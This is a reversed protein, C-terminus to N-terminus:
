RIIGGMGKVYDEVIFRDERNFVSYRFTISIQNSDIQKGSYEDVIDVDIVPDIKRFIDALIGDDCVRSFIVSLDYYYVSLNNKKWEFLEEKSLIDINSIKMRVCKSFKNIVVVDNSVEVIVGVHVTGHYRHKLGVEMGINNKFYVLDSSLANIAKDSRGLSEDFDDLYKASQSMISVFVSEDGKELLDNIYNIEKILCNRSKRTEPNEKQIAYYMYPNQAVIRSIMDLMMNYIPSAFKRSEKISINLNKITSALSIYTFHTLGQVISMMKDHEEPSSVIVRTNESILFEKIKSYWFGTTDIPTLIITQDEISPLRPGFMPHTPLIEVDDPAYKKLANTSNTKISAIDILVSNSPAYPAVEKITEEMKDLPVAFIIINANKIAEINNNSYDVQIKDAIIKGEKPNRSTITINYNFKKLYNAIWKGLGRTAGIITINIKAM